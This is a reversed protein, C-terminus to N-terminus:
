ARPLSLQGNAPVPVNECHRLYYSMAASVLIMVGLATGAGVRGRALVESGANEKFAEPWKEAFERYAKEGAAGEQAMAKFTSELGELQTVEKSTLQREKKADELKKMQDALMRVVQERAPAEKSNYESSCVSNDSAVPKGTRGSEVRFSEQGPARDPLNAMDAEAGGTTRENGPAASGGAREREAKIQAKEATPGELPFFFGKEKLIELAGPEFIAERQNPRDDLPKFKLLGSRELQDVTEQPLAIGLLGAEEGPRNGNRKILRDAFERATDLQVTTFLKGGHNGGKANLTAGQQEVAAAVSADTRGNAFIALRGNPIKDRVGAMLAPTLLESHTFTDALTSADDHSARGVQDKLWTLQRMRAEFQKQPLKTMVNDVFQRLDHASDEDVHSSISSVLSEARASEAARGTGQTETRSASGSDSELLQTASSKKPLGVTQAYDEFLRDTAASQASIRLGTQDSTNGVASVDGANTAM